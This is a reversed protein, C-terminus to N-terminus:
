IAGGNIPPDDLSKVPVDFAKLTFQFGEFAFAIGFAGSGKLDIGKLRGQINLPLPDLFPLGDSVPPSHLCLAKGLLPTGPPGPPPACSHRAKSRRSSEQRPGPTM